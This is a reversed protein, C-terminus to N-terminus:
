RTPTGVPAEDIADVLGWDLAMSVPLESGSLALWATRHRGVRGRISATGGAGPLLGMGVEPLRFTTGPAAVVRSAFAPLEIGAGVCSGHVWATTRTACRALWWGASRATRVLHAAPPDTATGFEDLDGGSCFSPGNGRLVVRRIAPEAVALQLGAVLADRMAAGYANHVEPRNLTLTLEDNRRDVLVPVGTEPRAPRTPRTALWARHEAGGQLAAYALSEIVLNH